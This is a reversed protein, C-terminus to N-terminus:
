DYTCLYNQYLIKIKFLHLHQLCICYYIVRTTKIIGNFRTGHEIKFYVIINTNHAFFTFKKLILDDCGVEIVYEICLLSKINESITM